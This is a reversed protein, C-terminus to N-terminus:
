YGMSRLAEGSYLYWDVCGYALDGTATGDGATRALLHTWRAHDQTDTPHPVPPRPPLPKIQKTSTRPETSLM